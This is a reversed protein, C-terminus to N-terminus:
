QNHHTHVLRNGQWVEFHGGSSPINIRYAHQVAAEDDDEQAEVTGYLRGDNNLFDVRYTPM